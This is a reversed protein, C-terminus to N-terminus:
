RNVKQFMGDLVQYMADIVAYSDHGFAGEHKEIIPMIAEALDKELATWKDVPEDIEDSGGGFTEDWNFDQDLSEGIKEFQKFDMVWLNRKVNKKMFDYVGDKEEPHQLVANQLKESNRDKSYNLYNKWSEHAKRNRKNAM